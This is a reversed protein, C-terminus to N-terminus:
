RVLLSEYSHCLGFPALPDVTHLDGEGLQSLLYYM